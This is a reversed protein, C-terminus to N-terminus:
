MAVVVRRVDFDDSVVTQERMEAMVRDIFEPDLRTDWTWGAMDRRLGRDIDVSEIGPIRGYLTAAAEDVHDVACRVADSYAQVMHAVLAPESAVLSRRAYLLYGYNSPDIVTRGDGLVHWGYRREAQSVYPEWNM